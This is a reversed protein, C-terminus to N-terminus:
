FAILMDGSHWIPDMVGMALSIFYNDERWMAGWKIYIYVM